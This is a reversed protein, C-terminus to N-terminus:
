AANSETTDVRPPEQPVEAADTCVCSPIEYSSHHHHLAWGLLSGVLANAAFTMPSVVGGYACYITQPLVMTLLIGTFFFVEDLSRRSSQANIYKGLFWKSSIRVVKSMKREKRFFQTARKNFFTGTAQVTGAPSEAFVLLKIPIRAVSFDRGDFEKGLNRTRRAGKM